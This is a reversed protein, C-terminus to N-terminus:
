LSTPPPLQGSKASTPRTRGCSSASSAPRCLLAGCGTVSNDAPHSLFDDRRNQAINRAVTTCLAICVCIFLGLLERSQTKDWQAWKVTSLNMKAYTNHTDSYIAHAPNYCPSTSRTPNFCGIRLVVVEKLAKVSDTPDSSRYSGTGSIVYLTNLPVNFGVWDILWQYSLWCLNMHTHYQTIECVLRGVCVVVSTSIVTECFWLCVFYLFFYVSSVRVFGFQSWNLFSVLFNCFDIDLGVPV